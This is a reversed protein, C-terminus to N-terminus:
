LDNRLCTAHRIRSLGREKSRDYVGDVLRDMNGAQKKARIDSPHTRQMHVDLGEFSYVGMVKSIHQQSIAVHLRHINRQM